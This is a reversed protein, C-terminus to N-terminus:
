VKSHVSPKLTLEAFLMETLSELFCLVLEGLRAEIGDQSLNTSASNCDVSLLCLLWSIRPIRPKEIRRDGVSLRTHFVELRQKTAKLERRDIPVASM